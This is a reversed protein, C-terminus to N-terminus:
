PRPMGPPWSSFGPVGIAPNHDFEVHGFAFPGIEGSDLPMSMPVAAISPVAQIVADSPATALEHGHVVSTIALAALAAVFLAAAMATRAFVGSPTGSRKGGPVVEMQAEMSIRM